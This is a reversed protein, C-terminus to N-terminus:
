YKSYFSRHSFDEFYDLWFERDKNFKNSNAYKDQSDIFNMYSFTPSEYSTGNILSHYIRVIEQITIGSSWSDSIIHHINLVVCTNGNPFRALKFKFLPSNFLSFKEQVFLDEFNKLDEISSVPVVEIDFEEFDVFYQCPEGEVLALRIRFSDNERVLINIAKKLVDINVDEKILGSGCINCINTDSYFFDMNWISRQPATLKFMKKDM